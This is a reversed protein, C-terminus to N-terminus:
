DVGGSDIRADDERLIRLRARHHLFSALYIDRHGSCTRCVQNHGLQRTERDTLRHRFDIGTAQLHPRQGEDVIGELIVDFLLTHTAADDIRALLHSGACHYVKNDAVAVAAATDRYREKDTFRGFLSTAVDM